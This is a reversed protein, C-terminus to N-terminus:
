PTAILKGTRYYQIRLRSTVGSETGIVRFALLNARGRLEYIDNDGLAIGSTQTPDTGNIKFRVLRTRNAVEEEDTEVAITAAIADSPVNLALSQTGDVDLDEYGDDAEAIPCRGVEGGSMLILQELFDETVSYNGNPYPNPQFLPPLGM